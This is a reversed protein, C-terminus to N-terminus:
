KCEPQVCVELGIGPCVWGELILVLVSGGFISKCQRCFVM